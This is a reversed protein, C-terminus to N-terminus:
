VLTIFCPTEEGVWAGIQNYSWFEFAEEVSLGMSVLKNLVKQKDYCVIPPKGFQEVIGCICDDYGDMTLFDHEDPDFGADIFRLSLKINM